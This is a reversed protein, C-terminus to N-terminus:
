KEEEKRLRKILHSTKRKIVKEIVPLTEELSDKVALIFILRDELKKLYSDVTPLAMKPTLTVVPEPPITPFIQRSWEYYSLLSFLYARFRGFNLLVLHPKGEIISTKIETCVKMASELSEREMEIKYLTDKIKKREGYLFSLPLAELEEETPVKRIEMM